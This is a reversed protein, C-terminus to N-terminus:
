KYRRILWVVVGIIFIVGPIIGLALIKVRQIDGSTMFLTETSELNKSPIYISEEEGKLWNAVATIFASNGYSVNADMNADLLYMSAGSVFLKTKDGEKSSNQATVTVGIDFPGSKDGPEKNQSKNTGQKTFADKSTTLVAETSVDKKKLDTEVVPQAVYALVNYGRAILGSTVETDKIVPLLATARSLYNNENGEIIYNNELSLGYAQIISLINKSKEVDIGGLICVAAGGQALYTRIKEAEEPAYDEDCTTLFLISCDDPIENNLLTLGEVEFGSLTLQKVVSTYYVPDAENHGQLFYIKSQSGKSLVQIAGTIESEVSLQYAETYSDYDYGATYYDEYNIVRYRDGMEVVISNIKVSKQQTSYKEAFDPHLYLDTNERKIKGSHQMYQDLIQEVRDKVVDKESNSFTTHIIVDEELSSLIKLSDESLTVFENKTIDFSKEFRGVILNILILVAITIITIVASYSGYKFRKDKFYKGM